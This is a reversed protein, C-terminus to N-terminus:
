LRPLCGSLLSLFIEGFSRREAGELAVVPYRVLVEEELWITLSGVKAGPEVPAELEEALELERRILGAQEKELLLRAEEGLVPQVTAQRGLRVPIPPLSGEPSLDKVTWRGFGYDLLRKADAFRSQSSEGGLVVAILEMGDRLASASLCYGASNTFGTKLGTAGPYTRILKNTNALQFAGNRLSDMWITTYDRILEHELLARSMLAIDYATTQHGQEPLGTCNLFQTDEMGLEGARENMRDVFASESGRLHEALAVSADNGSAVAVAKLLDSVTMREGEELYVQSGGMGAAQASVTVTEELSLEGRELAEATLLMTMIKTVSAPEMPLHGEWEYLVQGTEREMLLCSEAELELEAGRAPLALILSVALGVLIGTRKRM